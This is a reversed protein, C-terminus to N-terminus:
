FEVLEVFRLLRWIEVSLGESKLGFVRGHEGDLSSGFSYAGFGIDAVVSCSTSFVFIPRNEVTQKGADEVSAMGCILGM